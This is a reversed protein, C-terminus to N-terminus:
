TEGAAASQRSGDSESTWDWSAGRREAAAFGENRSGFRPRPHQSRCRSGRPESLMCISLWWGGMLASPPLEAQLRKHDENCLPKSKSEIKEKGRRNLMQKERLFLIIFTEGGTVFGCCGRRAAQNTETEFLEKTKKKNKKTVCDITPSDRRIQPVSLGLTRTAARLEFPLVFRADRSSPIPLLYLLSADWVSYFVLFARVNVPPIQGHTMWDGASFGQTATRTLALTIQSFDGCVSFM